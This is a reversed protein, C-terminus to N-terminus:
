FFRSITYIFFPKYVHSYDMYILRKFLNVKLFLM